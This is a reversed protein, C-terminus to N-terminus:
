IGIQDTISVLQYAGTGDTQYSFLASRGFPDTAKTIKLPDGSLEYAFTTSEGLADSVSTLRLPYSASADADIDYNLTVANGQPDVVQRLFIHNASDALNYVDKSGDPFREEYTYASVKALITQGMFNPGYTQNQADFTSAPYTKTGGGRLYVNANGSGDITIYSIWNMTWLPGLNSYTFNAPQNAETQTYSVSIAVPPGFPTEYHLPTDSLHLSALMTFVSYATMGGAQCSGGTQHDENSTANPDRAFTIGKGWVRGAEEADVSKWGSSDRELQDIPVLFYGSSEQELAHPSIRTESGFTPDQIVYQGEHTVAVLAGFHGVKWHVVSPVIFRAGLQRKAPTYKMGLKQALQWVQELSTGRDTSQMEQILPSACLPSHESALIRSLALPGCKFSRGPENEMFWLGRKAGKLQDETSGHLTRNDAEKFLKRMEDQRGLRSNLEALESIVRDGLNHARLDEAGKSLEWAQEWADLARSFYGTQRYMLGLNLLLAARWPSNPYSSLFRQLISDDARDSRTAFDGIAQALARNEEPSSRATPVLPETFAGCTFFEAETPLQSFRPAIARPGASHITKASEQCHLDALSAMVVAFCLFVKWPFRQNTRSRLLQRRTTDRTQIILSHLPCNQIM